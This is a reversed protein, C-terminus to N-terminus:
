DNMVKDHDISVDFSSSLLGRTECRKCEMEDGNNTWGVGMDPGEMMSALHPINCIGIFACM